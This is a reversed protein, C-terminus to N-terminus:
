GKMCKNIMNTRVAGVYKHGNPDKTGDVQATCATRMCKNINSTRAAGKLADGHRDVAKAECASMSQASAPAVMSGLAFATVFATLVISAKVSGEELTLSAIM